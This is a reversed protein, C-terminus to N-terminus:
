SRIENIFTYALDNELKDIEWEDKVGSFISKMAYKCLELKENSTINYGRENFGEVVSKVVKIYIQNTSM